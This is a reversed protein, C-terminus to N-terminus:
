VLFSDTGFRGRMRRYAFWDQNGLAPERVSQCKPNTQRSTRTTRGAPLRQNSFGNSASFQLAPTLPPMIGIRERHWAGPIGNPPRQGGAFPPGRCWGNGFTTFKAIRKEHSLVRFGVQSLHRHETSTRHIPALVGDLTFGTFETNDHGISLLVAVHPSIIKLHQWIASRRKHKHPLPPGESRLLRGV